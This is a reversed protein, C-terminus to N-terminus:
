GHLCRLACVAGIWYWMGLTVDAIGGGGDHMM